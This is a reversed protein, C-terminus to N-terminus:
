EDLFILIFFVKISLLNVEIESEINDCKEMEICNEFKILAVKREMEHILEDVNLATNVPM